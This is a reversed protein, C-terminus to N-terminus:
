RGRRCYWQEHNNNYADCFSTFDDGFGFENLWERYMTCFYCLDEVNFNFSTKTTPDRTFENTNESLEQYLLILDKENLENWYKVM